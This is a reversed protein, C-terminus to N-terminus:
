CYDSSKRSRRQWKQSEPHRTDHDRRVEKVPVPAPASSSPRGTTPAPQKMNKNLFGPM